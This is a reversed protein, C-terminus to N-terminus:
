GLRYKDAKSMSSSSTEDHFHSDGGLLATEVDDFHGVRCWSGVLQHDPDRCAPYAAGTATRGITDQPLAVDDANATAM